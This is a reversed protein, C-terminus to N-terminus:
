ANGALSKKVVQLQQWLIQKKVPERWYDQYNEVVLVPLNGMFEMEGAALTKGLLSRAVSQGWVLVSKCPPQQVQEDVFAQLSQQAVTEDNAYPFNKVPPWDFQKDSWYEFKKGTLAFYIDAFFVKCHEHDHWELTPQDLLMLLEGVRVLRHRYRIIKVTVGSTEISKDVLSGVASKKEFFLSAMATAPSNMDTNIVAVAPMESIVPRILVDASAMVTQPTQTVDANEIILGPSPKAATLRFRPRLIRLGMSELLSRRQGEQM